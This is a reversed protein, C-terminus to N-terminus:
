TRVIVGFITMNSSSNRGTNSAKDQPSAFIWDLTITPSDRCPRDPVATWANSANSATSAFVASRTEVVRCSTQRIRKVEPVVPGDFPTM